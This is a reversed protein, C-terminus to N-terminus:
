LMHSVSSLVPAIDRGLLVSAILQLFRQWGSHLMFFCEQFQNVVEREKGFMWSSM